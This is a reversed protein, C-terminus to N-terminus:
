IHIIYMCISVKGFSGKGLLKLFTFQELRYRKTSARVFNLYMGGTGVHGNTSPVRQSYTRPPVPPAGDRGSLHVFNYTDAIATRTM